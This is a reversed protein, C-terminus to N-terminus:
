ELREIAYLNELVPFIFRFNLGILSKGRKRDVNKEMAATTWTAALKYTISLKLERKEHIRMEKKEAREGGKVKATTEFYNSYKAFIEM